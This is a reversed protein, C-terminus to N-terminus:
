GVIPKCSAITCPSPDRPDDDPNRALGACKSTLVVPANSPGNSSIPLGVCSGPLVIMQDIGAGLFMLPYTGTNLDPNTAGNRQAPLLRQRLVFRHEIQNRGSQASAM